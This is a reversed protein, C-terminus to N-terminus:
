DTNTDFKTKKNILKWDKNSCDLCFTGLQKYFSKLHTRHDKKSHGKNSKYWSMKSKKYSHTIIGEKTFNFGIVMSRIGKIINESTNYKKALKQHLKDFYERKKM